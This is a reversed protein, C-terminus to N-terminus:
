GELRSAAHRIRTEWSPDASDLDVLDVFFADSVQWCREKLEAFRSPDVGRLALDIDSEARARGSHVSGVLYVATAGFDERAITAFKQALGRARESREKQLSLTVRARKELHDRLVRPNDCLLALRPLSEGAGSSPM